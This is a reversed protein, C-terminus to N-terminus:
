ANDNVEEENEEDEPEESDNRDKNIEYLERYYQVGTRDKILESTARNGLNFVNVQMTYPANDEFLLSEEESIVVLLETFDTIIPNQPDTDDFIANITADKELIIRNGQKYSVIADEVDNVNFPVIFTHEVTEGPYFM